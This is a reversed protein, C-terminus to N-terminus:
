KKKTNLLEIIFGFQTGIGMNVYKKVYTWSPTISGGVSIPYINPLQLHPSMLSLISNYKEGNKNIIKWDMRIKKLMQCNQIREMTNPNKVYIKVYPQRRGFNQTNNCIEDSSFIIMVRRKMSNYYTAM